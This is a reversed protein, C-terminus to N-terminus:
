TSFCPQAVIGPLLVGFSSTASAHASARNSRTLLVLPQIGGVIVM